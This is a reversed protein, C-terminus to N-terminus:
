KNIRKKKLAYFRRTLNVDIPKRQSASYAVLDTSFDELDNVSSDIKQAVFNIVEAPLKLGAVESKLKLLEKRLFLDLKAKDGGRSDIVKVLNDIRSDLQTKM